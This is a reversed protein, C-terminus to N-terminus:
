KAPELEIDAYSTHAVELLAYTAHAADLIAYTGATVTAFTLVQWAGMMREIALQTAAADPTESTLTYAALSAWHGEYRPYLYITKTGTLTAKASVEIAGDTGREFNLPHKIWERSTAVDPSLTLDLGVWQSLWPLWEAPATDPDAVLAYPPVGEASEEVLEAVKDVMRALASVFTALAYGNEEDELSLPELADYLREGTPTLSPM